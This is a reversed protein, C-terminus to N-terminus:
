VFFPTIKAEESAQIFEAAVQPVIANGYGKIEDRAMVVPLGDCSLLNSINGGLARRAGALAHGDFALPTGTLSSVCQEPECGEWGEGGAYAVWYLRKREHSAGYACAPLIASATAYAEGALDKILRDLWGFQIARAVQEGFLVSPCREKILKFWAPWLDRTDSFGKGGGDKVNGISFPQCPCSGTWVPKDDPWGALRLALSWGGIGAFFHCQAYGSLETANVDTISREDVVGDAIHGEKILERLWAAAKRDFENYYNMRGKAGGGDM